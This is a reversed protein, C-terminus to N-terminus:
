YRSIGARQVARDIRPADGDGRAADIRQHDGHLRQHIRAVLHHGDRRHPGVQRGLRGHQTRPDIACYFTEGIEGTAPDFACAGVSLLVANEKLGLTEFDIMLDKM